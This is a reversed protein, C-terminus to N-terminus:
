DQYTLELIWWTSFIHLLQQFFKSYCPLDERGSTLVYLLSVSSSHILFSLASVSGCTVFTGHWILLTLPSIISMPMQKPFANSGRDRVTTIMLDLHIKFCVTFIVKGIDPLFYPVQQYGQSPFCFESYLLESLGAAWSFPHEWLASAARGRSGEQPFSPAPLAPRLSQTEVWVRGSGLSGKRGRKRVMLM